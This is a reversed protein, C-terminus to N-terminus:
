YTVDFSPVGPLFEGNKCVFTFKRDDINICFDKSSNVRQRAISRFPYLTCILHFHYDCLKLTVESTGTRSNEASNPNQRILIYKIDDKDKWPVWTDAYRTTYPPISYDDNHNESNILNFLYATNNTIQCINLVM